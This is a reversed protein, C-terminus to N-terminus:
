TGSYWGNSGDYKTLIRDFWHQYKPAIVKMSFKDTAYQRLGVDMPQIQNVVSVFEKLMECRYGDPVIEPFGGWNPTLVPTGSLMAEVAVNGFPEMYESAMIVAHANALLEIKTDHSVCGVYDGYDVWSADGPGAIILPRGTAKAVDVAVRIGKDQTIRGVYLLYDARKDVPHYEYPDFFHPIVTDFWQAHLTREIGAVHSRWSNTGYCRYEACVGAYGIGYEISILQPLHKMISAQVGGVGNCLFDGPEARKEIELAQMYSSVVWAEQNPFWKYQGDKKYEAAWRQVADHEIANIHETCEVDCEDSAYVFVEHGLDMLMSVWRRMMATHGESDYEQTFQTFPLAPLHFRM